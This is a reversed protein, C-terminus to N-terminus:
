RGVIRWAYKWDKGWGTRPWLRDHPNEVLAVCEDTARNVDEHIQALLQTAKQYAAVALDVKQEEEYYIQLCKQVWVNDYGVAPFEQGDDSFWPLAKKYLVEVWGLLPNQLAPYWPATSIDVIQFLAQLKNNPIFSIQNGDIDLVQVDVTNVRDKQLGVVDLFNNTTNKQLSDMTVTEVTNAANETPGSITIVIPPNEIAAVKLTLAAQNHLSQQLAKKAIIRWDRWTSEWNYQNYRPRMQSLKVAIASYAERMARLQGVYEPLSITQNSNVKFYQEELCGAMDSQTYLEQAAENLFRLLVVRQSDISPNLGIKKGFQQLVYGVPM